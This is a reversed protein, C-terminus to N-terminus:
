PKTEREKKLQAELNKRETVDRSVGLAALTRGFEDGLPVVVTDCIGPSGDKRVFSVEGTWRGVKRMADLMVRTGDGESGALVSPSKGLMEEKSYGFMKEAGANWDLVQGELNMLMVGDSIHEFARAQRRLTDEMLRLRTV